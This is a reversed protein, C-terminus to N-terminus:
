HIYNKKGMLLLLRTEFIVLNFWYDKKLLCARVNRFTENNKQASPIM